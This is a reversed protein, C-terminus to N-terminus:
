SHAEMWERGSPSLSLLRREGAERITLLGLGGFAEDDGLVALLRQLQSQGLGLRKAARATSTGDNAAVFALLDALAQEIM